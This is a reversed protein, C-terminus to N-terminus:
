LIENRHVVKLECPFSAPVGHVPPVGFEFRGRILDTGPPWDSTPVHFGVGTTSLNALELTAQPGPSEVRFAIGHLGLLRVRPARPVLERVPETSEKRFLKSFISM